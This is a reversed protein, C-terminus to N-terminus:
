LEELVRKLVTLINLQATDLEECWYGEHNVFLLEGLAATLRNIQVAKGGVSM